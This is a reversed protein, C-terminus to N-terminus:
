LLLHSGFGRDLSLSGEAKYGNGWRLGSPTAITITSVM